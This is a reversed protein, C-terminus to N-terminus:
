AHGATAVLLRVGAALERTSELRLGARRLLSRFEPKSREHGSGCLVLMELDLLATADRVNGPLRLSEVILVRGGARLGSACVRLIQCAHEDDWNHLVHKIVYADAPAPVASFFDGSATEIRSSSKELVGRAQEIVQPRDYLVCRLRPHRAILETLVTGLGGGVDVVCELQSFDFAACLARAQRRTFADVARHYLEAAAPEMDLYEFLSRGHTREFASRKPDQLGAALATWPNWMFPAGVFRALERLRGECLQQGLDTLQYRAHLELELLGEGCLVRLLRVLAQEDCGLREALEAATLPAPLLADAIGLEAAASLAATVWKGSLLELLKQEPEVGRDM